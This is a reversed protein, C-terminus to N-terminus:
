RASALGEPVCDVRQTTQAADQPMEATQFM